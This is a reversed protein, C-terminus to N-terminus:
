VFLRYSGAEIVILVGIGMLVFPTVPAALRRIAPGLRPHSVLWHAILCWIATMVLFVVVTAILQVPTRTAFVPIYAGLNDGGNAITVVAVGLIRAHGGRSAAQEDHRTGKRMRVLKAVGLGFPLVGLLGVHESPAVLALLSGVVSLATLAGIGLLQGIVVQRPRLAPDAFFTVLVFLDDINTTAFLLAAVGVVALLEV